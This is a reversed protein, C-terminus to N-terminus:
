SVPELLAPDCRSSRCSQVRACRRWLGVPVPNDSAPARNIRMASLTVSRWALGKTGPQHSAGLGTRQCICWTSVTAVTSPRLPTASIKRTTRLWAQNVANLKPPELPTRPSLLQPTLSETSQVKTASPETSLTNEPLKRETAPPEEVWFYVVGYSVAALVLAGLLLGIILRRRSPQPPPEPTAEKDTAPPEDVAGPETSLAELWRRFVQAFRAQEDADRCFLPSLLPRLAAARAPMRQGAQMALLLDYVNQWRAPGVVFGEARLADLKPLALRLRGFLERERWEPERAADM